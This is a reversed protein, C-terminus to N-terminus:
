AQRALMERGQGWRRLVLDVLEQPVQESAGEGLLPATLLGAGARRARDHFTGPAVLFSLATVARGVEQQAQALAQAATPEAASLFGPHVPRGLLRQLDVCQARVDAAARADSSGAAILVLPDAPGDDDNDDHGQGPFSAAEAEQLRRALLRSLLPDPGLADTVVHESSGQAARALDHRVHYGAALLLPVIVVPREILQTCRQALDPTQVDVWTELVETSPLAQAVADTIRATARRAAEARSGHACLLLVPEPAEPGPTPPVESGAPAPRTM